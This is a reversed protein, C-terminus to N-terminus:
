GPILDTYKCRVQTHTHTHLTPTIHPNGVLFARNICDSIFPRLIPSHILPSSTKLLWKLKIVTIM